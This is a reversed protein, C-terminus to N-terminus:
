DRKLGVVPPVGFITKGFFIIKNVCISIDVWKGALSSLSMCDCFQAFELVFELVPKLVLKLKVAFLSLLKFISFHPFSHVDTM